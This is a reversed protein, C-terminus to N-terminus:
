EVDPLPEMSDLIIEDETPVRLNASLQYTDTQIYKAGNRSLKMTITLTGEENKSIDFRETVGNDHTYELHYGNSDKSMEHGYENLLREAEKGVDLFTKITVDFDPLPTTSKVYKNNRGGAQTGFISNWSHYCTDRTAILWPDADGDNWLQFITDENNINQASVQIPTSSGTVIGKEDTTMEMSEFAEAGISKVQPLSLFEDMKNAPGEVTASSELTFANTEALTTLEQELQDGASGGSCGILVLALLAIVTLLALKKLTNKTSPNIPVM